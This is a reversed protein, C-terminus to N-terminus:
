LLVKHLGFYGQAADLFHGRRLSLAQWKIDTTFGSRVLMSLM